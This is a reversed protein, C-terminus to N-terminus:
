AVRRRRGRSVAAGFAAPDQERKQRAAELGRALRAATEPDQWRERMHAAFEARAGPRGWRGPPPQATRAERETESALPVGSVPRLPCAADPCLGDTCARCMATVADTHEDLRRELGVGYRGDELLTLAKGISQKRAPGTRLLEGRLLMVAERRAALVGSRSRAGLVQCRSSCYRRPAGGEHVYHAGCAACRGSRAERVIAALAPADLADALRLATSLTPLNDGMRWKGVASQTVGAAAALPKAGVHRRTMARRLEAGFRRAADRRPSDPSLPQM